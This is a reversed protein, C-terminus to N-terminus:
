EAEYFECSARAICGLDGAGQTCHLGLGLGQPSFFRVQKSVGKEHKRAIQWFFSAVIGNSTSKVVQSPKGRQNDAERLTHGLGLSRLLSGRCLM